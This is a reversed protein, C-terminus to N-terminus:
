IEEYQPPIPRQIRCGISKLLIVAKDIESQSPNNIPHMYDSKVSPIVLQAPNNNKESYRKLAIKAAIEGISYCDKINPDRLIKYYGRKIRIVLGIHTLNTLLVVSLKYKQIIKEFEIHSTENDSFKARMEILGTLMREATEQKM